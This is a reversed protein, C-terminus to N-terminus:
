RLNTRCSPNRSNRVGFNIKVYGASQHWVGITPESIAASSQSIHCVGSKIALATQVRMGLIVLWQVNM